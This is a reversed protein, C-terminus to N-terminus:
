FMQGCCMTSFQFVVRLGGPIMCFLFFYIMQFHAVLSNCLSMKFHHLLWCLLFYSLLIIFQSMHTSLCYYFGTKVSRSTMASAACKKQPWVSCDPWIGYAPERQDPYRFSNMCASSWVKCSSHSITPTVEHSAPLMLPDWWTLAAVVGSPHPYLYPYRYGWVPCPISTFCM